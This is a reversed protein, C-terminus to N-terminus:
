NHRDEPNLRDSVELRMRQHFLLCGPNPTWYHKMIPWDVDQSLDCDFRVLYAETHEETDQMVHSIGWTFGRGDNTNTCKDPIYGGGANPPYTIRSMVKFNLGDPAYQVTNKEPGNRTVLLAVGEKYPWAFTEHGSNTLPNLKSKKFPGEPKKAIAVNWHPVNYYLWYEGNRVIINPDLVGQYSQDKEPVLLPKDHKTWPGGPSDAWAMGIVIPVEDVSKEAQYYLYYRGDVYMVDPTFVSRCDFSGPPGPYLAIGQEEWNFGDKSTAYAICGYDWSTNRIRPKAEHYCATTANEHDIPGDGASYTYWVYFTDDVKLITTPDRRSIGKTLGLGVADSYKFLTYFENDPDETSNWTTRYRYMAASEDAQQQTYCLMVFSSVLATSVFSFFLKRYSKLM